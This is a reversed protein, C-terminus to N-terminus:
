LRGLGELWREIAMAPWTEWKAIDLNDVSLTQAMFGMEKLGQATPAIKQEAGVFLFDLTQLPASQRPWKFRGLETGVVLCGATRQAEVLSAALAMRGGVGAGALVSRSKDIEYNNDLRGIVRGALEVEERSWGRPNGSSVVAVIWGYDRCFNSWVTQVKQRDVEGPEPFLILL